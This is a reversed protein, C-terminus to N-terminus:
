ESRSAPPPDGPAIGAQYMRLTQQLAEVAEPPGAEGLAELAQQVTKQAQDFRGAAAYAAALADLLRPQEYNTAQCLQEALRVAEAPDRLRRDPCAALLWVLSERM